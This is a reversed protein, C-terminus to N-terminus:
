GRVGMLYKHGPGTLEGSLTVETSPLSPDGGPPTYVFQVPGGGNPAVGTLSGCAVADGVLAFAASAAPDPELSTALVRRPDAGPFCIRVLSGEPITAKAGPIGLRFPVALLDGVREDDASVDLTGDGRQARVMAVYTALYLRADSVRVPDGALASRVEVRLSGPQFRYEVAVAQVGNITTGPLIPAGDPAYLMMGDSPDGGIFVADTEVENWTEAGLWISGDPTVRWGLGLRDAFIDLADRASMALRTWRGLPIADLALEVDPILQEGAADAIARAVAGAPVPGSGVVQDLPPLEELLGGAGGVLTATVTESGELIGSRRILGSFVDTTGDERTFVLSAEGSPAEPFGFEVHAVWNGRLPLRLLGSTVPLEGLECRLLVTSM